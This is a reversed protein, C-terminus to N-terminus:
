TAVHRLNFLMLRVLMVREDGNATSLPLVLTNLVTALDNTVYRVSTKRIRGLLCRHHCDRVPVRPAVAFGCKYCFFAWHTLSTYNSVM